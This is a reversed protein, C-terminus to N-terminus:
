GAVEGAVEETVEGAVEVVAEPSLPIICKFIDEDILEPTKGTSYHRCYKFLNRVGSGLEDARGIEKFFRAIVPNKPFPSFNAPDILSHGHLKNSNETFLRHTEIIFKAPYPNIFERHILMNVVVERFM